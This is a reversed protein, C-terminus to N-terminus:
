AGNDADEIQASELTPVSKAHDKNLIHDRHRASQLTTHIDQQLAASLPNVFPEKTATIAIYTYFTWLLPASIGLIDGSYYQIIFGFAWFGGVAASVVLGQRTWNPKNRILGYTLLLGAVFFVAGWFPLPPVIGSEPLRRFNILRQPDDIALLIGMVFNVFAIAGTIRLLNPHTKAMKIVSM